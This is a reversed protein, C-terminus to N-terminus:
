KNTFELMEEVIVSMKKVNELIEEAYHVRKGVQIEALFNESYGSIVMMPTKLHHALANVKQSYASEVAQQKRYLKDYSRAIFLTLLFM